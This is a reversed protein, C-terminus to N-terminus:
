VKHYASIGLTSRQIAVASSSRGIREAIARDTDTGLLDLEERTWRAFFPPIGLQERKRRVAAANKGLQRGVERDTGTGLLAIEEETWRWLIGPIGLRRRKQEVTYKPVGLLRAIAGDTNTGLLCIEAETWHHCSPLGHEEPHEWVEQMRRSMKRKWEDSRPRRLAERQAAIM